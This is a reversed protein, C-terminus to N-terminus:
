PKVKAAEECHLPWAASSMATADSLMRRVVATPKRGSRPKTVGRTISYWVLDLASRVLTFPFQTKAM